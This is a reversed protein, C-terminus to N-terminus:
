YATSPLPLPRAGIRYRNRDLKMLNEGYSEAKTNM